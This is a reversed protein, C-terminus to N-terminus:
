HKDAGWRCRLAARMEDVPNAFPNGGQLRLTDHAVRKQDGYRVIWGADFDSYATEFPPACEGFWAEACAGGETEYFAQM